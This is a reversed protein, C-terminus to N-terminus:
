HPIRCRWERQPGVFAGGYETRHDDPVHVVRRRNRKDPGRTTFYPDFIRPLVDDPIGGCNDRIYMVARGNERAIRISIRPDSVSHELCADRSNSLLNLLVQAYENQYGTATVTEDGAIEVRINHSKLSASVLALSSSVATSLLFQRREKDERFFNRFDNITGSMHQLVEMIEHVNHHVEESTLTGSDYESQVSQVMLSIANLPQRWQHAINGIMEGMAALRNQQIMALDKRRLDAVMEAVRAELTQHLQSLKEEALKRESIDNMTVWCEGNQAPTAQLHAWFPVGGARLLRMEWVQPSNTEHCLTCQRYFTNLEGKHLICSVPENVLSNRVVGLMTAAALNVERIMSQESLTLYGVPALDYLDFYRSRSDALEAQARRLEVNQMELEIQHM